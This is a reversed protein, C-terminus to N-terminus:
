RSYLYSLAIGQVLMALMGLQFVPEQRMYTAPADHETFVGFPSVPQTAFTAVFYALVALVHKTMTPSRNKIEQRCTGAEQAAKTNEPTPNFRFGGHRDGM